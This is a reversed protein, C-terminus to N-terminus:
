SEECKNRIIVCMDKMKTCDLYLICPPVLHKNRNEGNTGPEGKRESVNILVNDTRTYLPPLPTLIPVQRKLLNGIIASENSDGNGIEISPPLEMASSSACNQMETPDVSDLESYELGTHQVMVSYNAVKTCRCSCIGRKKVCGCHSQTNILEDTSPYLDYRPKQTYMMTSPPKPPCPPCAITGVTPTRPIDLMHGCSIIMPPGCPPHASAFPSNTPCNCDKKGTSSHQIKPRESPKQNGGGKCKCCDCNDGGQPVGPGRMKRLKRAKKREQKRRRNKEKIIRKEEKRERKLIDNEHKKRRKEENKMQKVQAKMEKLTLGPKGGTRGCGCNGLGEGHTGAIPPNFGTSRTNYPCMAKPVGCCTCLGTNYPCMAKPVGCCTCLGVSGTGSGGQGPMWGDSTSAAANTGCGGAGCRQTQGETKLPSSTSKHCGTRRPPPSWPQFPPGKTDQVNHCAYNDRPNHFCNGDLHQPYMYRLYPATELGLTTRSTSTASTKFIRTGCVSHATSTQTAVCEGICLQESSEESTRFYKIDTEEIQAQFAGFGRNGCHCTLNPM